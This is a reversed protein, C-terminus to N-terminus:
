TDIDFHEMWERTGFYKCSYSAIHTAKKLASVMDPYGSVFYYCYAGHLIDGAGLTDITYEINPISIEGTNGRTYFLTAEAGRTIAIHPVGKDNLYSIVDNSGKCGPPLFRESCIAHDIYKLLEDTGDKWSGGDFVVPKTIERAYRALQLATEMQHGDVMVIDSTSIVEFCKPSLKTEAEAFVSANASVIARAGTSKTIMISSLPPFDAFEPSLDYHYIRYKGWEGKIISSVLHKGLASCLHSEGGLHGFAVAANTAPGGSLILQRQAIEKGNDDPLCTILYIIDLTSLGAFFCKKSM